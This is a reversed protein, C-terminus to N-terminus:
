GNVGELLTRGNHLQPLWQPVCATTNETCHAVLFPAFLVRLPAARTGPCHTSGLVATAAGAGSCRSGAM